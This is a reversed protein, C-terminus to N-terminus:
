HKGKSRSRMRKGGSRKGRSRNGRSRNGRSRKDGSRKGRRNKNKLRRTKRKRGGGQGLGELRVVNEQMTKLFSGKQKGEFDSINDNIMQNTFMMYNEDNKNVKIFIDEGSDLYLTIIRMGRESLNELGFYFRGDVKAKNVLIFVYPGNQGGEGDSWWMKSQGFILKLDTLKKGHNSDVNDM